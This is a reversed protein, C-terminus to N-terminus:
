EGNLVSAFSPAQDASKINKLEKVQNEPEEGRPKDCSAKVYRDIQRKLDSHVRDHKIEWEMLHNELEKIKVKFDRNREQVKATKVLKNIQETKRKLKVYFISMAHSFIQSSVCFSLHNM